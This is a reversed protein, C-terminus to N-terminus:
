KLQIIKDRPLPITLLTYTNSVLKYFNVSDGKAIVVVQQVGESYTHYEFAIANELELPKPGLLFFFLLDQDILKM